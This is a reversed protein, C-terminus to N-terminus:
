VSQHAMLPTGSTGTQDQVHVRGKVKLLVTTERSISREKSCVTCIYEGSDRQTPLKLTLSLDGTKLLDENMETRDRYDQHQEELQDSSSQYLHVMISPKPKIRKWQVEADLPLDGITTFPLQVSGAGEVLEMVCNIVRLLVTKKRKMGKAEVRCIYKGTDRDTPCKLTLSLDGSKLLDENMKTRDRYFQNQEDTQDPGNQYKHVTMPPEPEYRWWEVQANSLDGTTKFPLQVFEVGKGEEVEVQCVKVRLRVQRKMLIDGERSYVTCTYTYNDRDTPLRLTLSLDGSNLPDKNMETRGRYFEDQEEPQDSGNQYVHVETTRIHICTWEVKADKPLPVKTKCSLQVSEVESDVEVQPVRVFLKVQKKVMINGERNYITCTYTNTDRDTPYELTLSLNVAIQPNRTM